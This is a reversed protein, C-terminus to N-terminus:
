SSMRTATSMLQFSQLGFNCPSSGLITDGFDTGPPWLFELIVIEYWPQSDRVKVRYEAPLTYSKGGATVKGHFTCQAIWECNELHPIPFPSNSENRIGLEANRM